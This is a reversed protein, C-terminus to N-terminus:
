IKVIKKKWYKYKEAYQSKIDQPISYKTAEIYKGTIFFGGVSIKEKGEVMKKVKEDLAKYEQYINKILDMRNLDAELEENDIIQLGKGFDRKGLCIHRFKCEACIEEDINKEGERSEALCLNVDEIKKLLGEAYEYDLPVEIIKYQGTIKNRLIFLGREKNAMLLYVFLQAPYMRVYYRKHKLMDEISDIKDWSSPALGKVETPLVTGNVRTNWDLRGSIRYEPWEFPRQQEVIEVGAARLDNQIAQEQNRGEDFIYQLRLDHKLQDQWRTRSYVLFAECPHGVQSAWNTRVPYITIRKQKAENIKDLITQSITM